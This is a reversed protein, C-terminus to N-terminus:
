ASCTQLRIHRNFCPCLKNSRYLDILSEERVILERFMGIRGLREHVDKFQQEQTKFDTYSSDKYEFKIDQKPADKQSQGPKSQQQNLHQQQQQQQQQNQQNQQQKQQKQQEASGGVPAHKANGEYRQDSALKFGFLEFSDPSDASAASVGFKYGEPLRVKSTEFCTKGDTQVKLGKNHNYSLTLITIVGLNRYALIAIVLRYSNHIIIYLTIQIGMM